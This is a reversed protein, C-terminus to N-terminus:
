RKSSKHFETIDDLKCRLAKCIRVLVDTTLNEGHNLKYTTYHSISSERESDRKKMGGDKLQNWLKSYNVTM